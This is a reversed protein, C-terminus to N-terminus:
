ARQPRTKPTQSLSSNDPTAMQSYCPYYAVEKIRPPATQYSTPSM